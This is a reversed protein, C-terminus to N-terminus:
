EGLKCKSLLERSVSKTFEAVQELRSEDMIKISGIFSLIACIYYDKNRRIDNEAKSLIENTTM